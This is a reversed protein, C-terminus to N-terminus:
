QQRRRSADVSYLSEQTSWSSRSDFYIQIKFMKTKKNRLRFTSYWQRLENSGSLKKQKRNRLNIVRFICIVTSPPWIYFFFTFRENWIVSLCKRKSKCILNGAIHNVISVIGVLTVREYIDLQKIFYIFERTTPDIPESTKFHNPIFVFPLYFTGKKLTMSTTKHEDSWLRLFWQVFSVFFHYFQLAHLIKKECFAIGRMLCKEWIFRM